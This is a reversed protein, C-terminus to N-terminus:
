FLCLPHNDQLLVSVFLRGDFALVVSVMDQKNPSLPIPAPCRLKSEIRVADDIYRSIGQVSLDM